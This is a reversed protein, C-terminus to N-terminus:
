ISHGWAVATRQSLNQRADVETVFPSTGSQTPAPMSFAGVGQRPLSLTPDLEYDVAMATRSKGIVEGCWNAHQMRMKNDAVSALMTEQYDIASAPTHHGVTEAGPSGSMAPTFSENHGGEVAEMLANQEAAAIDNPSVASGRYGKALDSHYLPRGGGAFGEPSGLRRATAAVVDAAHAAAVQRPGAAWYQLNGAIDADRFAQDNPAGSILYATDAAALPIRPSSVNSVVGGSAFGSKQPAACNADGCGSRLFGGQCLVVVILVVLLVILIAENTHM